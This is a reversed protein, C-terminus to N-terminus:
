LVIIKLHMLLLFVFYAGFMLVNILLALVLQRTTVPHRQAARPDPYKRNRVAWGLFCIAISQIICFKAVFPIPLRAIAFVGAAATTLVLLAAIGYQPRQNAM